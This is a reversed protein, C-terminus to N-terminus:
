EIPIEVPQRHRFILSSNFGCEKAIKMAEDVHLGMHEPYHADSAFTVYKGGLEKYRRVYPASPFTENITQRLGSANVEMPIDKEVLLSFIEDIDKQYTSIDVYIGSNGIIYRLPYTLHAMTDIRGWDVMGKVEQFYEKLIADVDLDKYDYHSFDKWNRLSHISGIVVDFDRSEILEISDKLNYTPEGLEVGSLIEIKGEYIKKAEVTEDYSLYITKDYGKEKYLDMEVHDTIGVVQIGKEIAADVMVEIPFHGDYSNKTHNHIDVFNKFSM